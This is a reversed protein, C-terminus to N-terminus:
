LFLNRAYNAAVLSNDRSEEAGTSLHEIRQRLNDPDPINHEPWALRIAHWGALPSVHNWDLTDAHSVCSLVQLLADALGDIRM